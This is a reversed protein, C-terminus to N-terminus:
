RYLSVFELDDEGHLCFVTAAQWAALGALLGHCFTAVARFVKQTALGLQLPSAQVCM